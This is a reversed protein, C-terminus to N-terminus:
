LASAALALHHASLRILSLSLPPPYCSNRPRLGAPTLVAFKLPFNWAASSIRFQPPACYCPAVRRTSMVRSSRGNSWAPPQTYWATATRYAHCRSLIGDSDIARTAHWLFRSPSLKTSQLKAQCSTTNTDSSAYFIYQLKELKGCLKAISHNVLTFLVVYNWLNQKSPKHRDSLPSIYVWNYLFSYNSYKIQTNILFCTVSNLATSMSSQYEPAKSSM